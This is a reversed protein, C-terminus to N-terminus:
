AHRQYALFGAVALFDFHGGSHFLGGLHCGRALRFCFNTQLFSDPADAKTLSVISASWDFAFYGGVSILTGFIAGFIGRERVHFWYAKVKIISMAGFSQFYMNIAYLVSFASRGSQSEFTQRHHALDSNGARCQGAGRRAASILMGNKGGIKKDILPGNVLFSLRM